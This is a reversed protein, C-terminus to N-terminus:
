LGGYKVFIDSDELFVTNGDYDVPNITVIAKSIDSTPNMVRYTCEKVGSYNGIGTIKVLIETGSNDGVIFDTKLVAGNRYRKQPEEKNINKYIITSNNYLYEVKYDKNIGLKKAGNKITLAPAKRLPNQTNSKNTAVFDVLDVTANGIDKKGVNYSVKTVGKFNKKGTVTIEVTSGPM